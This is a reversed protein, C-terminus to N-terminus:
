PRIPIHKIFRAECSFWGGRMKTSFQQLFWNTLKSNLIGLVFNQSCGQAILIGYGGAAGGTFFIEGTEDISFSVQSVLDPTFIKPLPMVDLAKPYVYGYWKAGKMKGNERNELYKKNELLYQWTLPYREKLVPEPILGNKGDPNGAYPFLILRNTTSLSYRKSDGGKVLPHLLDSEMWYEAGKEPSYIKVKGDQRIVEEVIYIKDASTKVGQFIRDTVDELKLPFEQLRRYLGVGEGVLFNWEDGTIDDSSMEGQISRGSSKWDDLNAVSEFIFTDQGKATLFLLCTYTTANAFVQQHGFHVISRIHRGCAILERLGKGYQANFFKHPLIFGLHGDKN